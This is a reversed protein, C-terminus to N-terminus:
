YRVTSSNNERNDYNGDKVKIFNNPKVFWDFTIVWDTKRGTLFDSEKIKDIAKLVEDNGYQKIRAVLSNYRKTGSSLKSIPKVGVESLSNWKNVIDRLLTTTNNNYTTNNLTYVSDIISIDKISKDKNHTQVAGGRNNLCCGGQQEFLVGQQEDACILGSYNEGFGYLTFTGGERVVTHTLIGFDVLKNLRDSFARKSIDIIPLDDTLKRYTIWAYQKGDVEMKRMNPYFDVFWRLIVLDTCDIKRTIMKGRSMVEKKLTVVYEQSFGEITFKM